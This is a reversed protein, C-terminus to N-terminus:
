EYRLSDIPDLKSAKIAPYIGSIIGVLISIGIGLFVWAWPIIFSSGIVVSIINGVLIGFFAGLVGGFFTITIAEILFQRKITINKAGIAKRVGIERTREAVSVLMINMLGISAGLLTILGIITAAMTIYKINDMLTEILSDSKSINFNDDESPSLDRVLRFKATAEGIAADIQSPNMAMVNINYNSRSTMYNLKANLLPIICDKDANFGFSSGKSEMVGIVTYQASGITLQKNLPDANEFLTEEIEPGIIVLNSGNILEQKSFNRGKAIKIGSTHFYNEDAGIVSINPNSKTSKYRLTSTYTAHIFVSTYAPFDYIEKFEQAQKYNVVPYRKTEGGGMRVNSSRNTINFTNAGMMMFNESLSNKISDISTLIGTLATIGLAIILVTLITRLLNNRISRLAIRINELLVSNKM